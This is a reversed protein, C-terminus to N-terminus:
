GFSVDISDVVNGQDFHCLVNPLIFTIGILVLLIIRPTKTSILKIMGLDASTVIISLLKDIFLIISVWYCFGSLPFLVSFLVDQGILGPDELVVKLLSILFAFASSLTMLLVTAFLSLKTSSQLAQGVLEYVGYITCAGACVLMLGHCVKYIIENQDCDIPDFILDGISDIGDQCICISKRTANDFVCTGFGSCDVGGPWLFDFNCNAEGM